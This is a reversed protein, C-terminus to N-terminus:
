ADVDPLVQGVEELATRMEDYLDRAKDLLATPKEKSAKGMGFLRAVSTKARELSALRRTDDGRPGYWLELYAALYLVGDFGYNKDLDPGLNGAATISELASQERDLSLTYFFRAKHRFLEGLYDFNEGPDQRHLDDFLWAARLACLAQKITPSQEAPLFDYCLLAFFYSAAGERLTRPERYDLEELIPEISTVRRDTDDEIRSRIEENIESFDSPFTAYYCGPCVTIPYILPNIVGYKQSPEFVRRLEDTLEGAILRGRGTLLDERYFRTQCVPCMTEKKSFFTIRAADREAM